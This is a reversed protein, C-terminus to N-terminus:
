RGASNPMQNSQNDRLESGLMRASPVRDPDLNYAHAYPWGTLARRVKPGKKHETQGPAPGADAGSPRHFKRTPINYHLVSARKMMM